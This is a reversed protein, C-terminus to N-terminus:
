VGATEESSVPIARSHVKGIIDQDYVSIHGSNALFVVM